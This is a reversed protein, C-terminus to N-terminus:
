TCWTSKCTRYAIVYLCVISSHGEINLVLFEMLGCLTWCIRVVNKNVHIRQLSELSPEIWDWTPEFKITKELESQLCVPAQLGIWM